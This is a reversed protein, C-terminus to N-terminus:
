IGHEGINTFPFDDCVPIKASDKLVQWTFCQHSTQGFPLTVFPSGTQFTESMMDNQALRM